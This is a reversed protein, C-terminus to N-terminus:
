LVTCNFGGTLLWTVLSNCRSSDRWGVSRPWTTISAEVKCVADEKDAYITNPCHCVHGIYKLYLSRTVNRLNSNKNTDALPLITKGWPNTLSARGSTWLPGAPPWKPLIFVKLFIFALNQDVLAYLLYWLKDSIPWTCTQVLVSPVGVNLVM